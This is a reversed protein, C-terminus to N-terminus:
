EAAEQCRCPRPVGQPWPHGEPWNDGFWDWARELTASHCGKGQSIRHFTGQSGTALGSLKWFTTGTALRYADALVLLDAARM